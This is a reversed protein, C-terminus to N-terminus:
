SGTGSYSNVGVSWVLYALAFLAIGVVPSIYILWSAEQPRLMLQSPYFAIFGIPIIYTFLFRFFGDFITTPYQAFERLRFALALISYSQLTWFAACSAIVLIAIVVLSASFLTLIMLGIRGATWTLGLQTSAYAIVAGGLVVQAFGKIDVMESMYYFMMNLPRFYYKIFTGEMLHYRLQWIHDFFIQAPSVALLYFGYIFLIEEFTWGALHPITHFLVWFVALSAINSFIMGISSVIFDVRYNMRAKIYQAELRLYLRGYHVLNAFM